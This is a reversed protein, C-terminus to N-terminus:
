ALMKQVAPKVSERVFGGRLVRECELFSRDDEINGSHERAMRRVLVAEFLGSELGGVVRELGGGAHECIDVLVEQM